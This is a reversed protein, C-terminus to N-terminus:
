LVKTEEDTNIFTINEDPLSAGLQQMMEAHGCHLCLKYEEIFEDREFHKKCKVCQNEDKIIADKLRQLISRGM